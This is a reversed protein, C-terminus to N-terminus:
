KLKPSPLDSIDFFGKMISPIDDSNFGGKDRWVKMEKLYEKYEESVEWETITMDGKQPAVPMNLMRELFLAKTANDDYSVGYDIVNGEADLEPQVSYQSYLQLGVTNPDADVFYKMSEDYKDMWYKEVDQPTGMKQLFDRGKNSKMEALVSTQFISQLKFMIFYESKPDGLMSQYSVGSKEGEALLKDMALTVYYKANDLYPQMDALQASVGTLKNAFSDLATTYLEQQASDLETGWKVAWNAVLEKGKATLRVDQTLTILDQANDFMGLVIKQWYKNMVAPDGYTDPVKQGKNKWGDIREVEMYLAERASKTLKAEGIQKNLAEKPFISKGDDGKPDYKNNIWSSINDNIAKSNAVNLRGNRAIFVQGQQQMNEKAWNKLFEHLHKPVKNKTFFNNKRVSLHKYVGQWDVYEEDDMPDIFKWGQVAVTKWLTTFAFLEMAGYQSDQDVTLGQEAAKFIRSKEQKLIESIAQQYSTNDTYELGIIKNQFDTTGTDFRIQAADTVKKRRITRLNLKGTGLESYLDSEFRLWAEDDGKYLKKYDTETKKSFTDWNAIYKDESDIEPNDRILSNFENIENILKSKNKTNKNLIEQERIRLNHAKTRASVGSLYDRLKNISDTASSSGLAMSTMANTDSPLNVNQRNERPIKIVM